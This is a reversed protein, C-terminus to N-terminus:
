RRASRNSVDVSPRPPVHIDPAAPKARRIKKLWSGLYATLLGGLAGIISLGFSLAAFGLLKDSTGQFGSFLFSISLCFGYVIGAWATTKKDGSCLGVGIGFVGWFVLDFWGIYFAHTSLFGCVIGLIAALLFVNRSRMSKM